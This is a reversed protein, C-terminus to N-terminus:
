IPAIRAAPPKAGLGRPGWTPKPVRQALAKRHGRPARRLAQRLVRRASLKQRLAHWSGDAWQPM